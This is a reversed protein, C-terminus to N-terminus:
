GGKCWGKKNPCSRSCDVGKPIAFIDDTEPATDYSVIDFTLKHALGLRRFVANFKDEYVCPVGKADLSWNDSVMTFWDGPHYSAWRADPPM